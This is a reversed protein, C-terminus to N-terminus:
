DSSIQAQELLELFQTESLQNLGWKEAKKLQKVGPSKGVLLYDTQSSLSTRLSGGAKKMLEKIQDRTLQNLRGIIVLKKGALSTETAILDNETQKSNPIQKSGQEVLSSVKEGHLQTIQEELSSLKEGEQQLQTTINKNELSLQAVQKELSSNKEGQIKIQTTINKNERSLQAMQEELFSVKERQNKLEKELNEQVQSLEQLLNNKEQQLKQKELVLLDEKEEAQSFQTTLEELEQEVGKLQQYIQRTRLWQFYSLSGVLLVILGAIEYIEYQAM